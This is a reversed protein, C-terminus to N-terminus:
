NENKWKRGGGSVLQVTQDNGEGEIRVRKGKVLELMALFTAVLESKSQSNEFMEDYRVPKGGWLRKMVGIIKSAVSVIKRRVIGSFADETPMKKLKGRGVAALYANLLDIPPHLRQYKTEAKIKSPERCFSDFSIEEALRKAAKRCEQYELLQGTLEKKLEEAEEHKPLLSVSKMYVLRSAMDLFESALGPDEEQMIRIHEMYQELLESIQIDYINLKNKHILHLLLDLPGEFVPLRYSIKEMFDGSICSKNKFDSRCKRM